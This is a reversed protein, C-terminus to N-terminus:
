YISIHKTPSTRFLLQVCSYYLMLQMLMTQRRSLVECHHIQLDPIHCLVLIVVKCNGSSCRKQNILVNMMLCKITQKLEIRVIVFILLDHRTTAQLPINAMNDLKRELFNQYCTHIIIKTMLMTMM